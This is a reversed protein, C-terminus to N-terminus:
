IRKVGQFDINLTKNNISEQVIQASPTMIYGDWTNGYHDLFVVQKGLTDYMFQLLQVKQTEKLWHFSMNLTVTKPWEEDRFIILDGGRSRRNIRSFDFKKNNGYEPRPLQINTAGFQLYTYNAPPTPLPTLTVYFSRDAKFYALNSRFNIESILALTRIVDCDVVQTLVLQQHPAYVRQVAVIQGLALTQSMDRVLPHGAVHSLAFYNSVSVAKSKPHTTQTLSLSSAVSVSKLGFTLRATHSLQLTNNPSRYHLTPRETDVLNLQSSVNLIKFNSRAASQLALINGAFVEIVAM